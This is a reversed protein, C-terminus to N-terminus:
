AALADLKVTRSRAVAVWSAAVAVLLWAVLGLLPLTASHGTMMMRVADLAPSLPSLPRLASLSGPASYAVASVVTILLFVLSAVRGKTGFWAALAHNVAVFAAAAVLSVAVVGVTRGADLGLVRGGLVGLAVAQAAAVALGPALSRWLLRGNGRSSELNRPDVARFVAYAALAGIWLAMVLLLSAWSLTPLVLEDLGETSIPSAVVTALTSREDETYRPIEGAGEAVGDALLRTGDALERTGDALQHAGDALQGAGSAAQDIGATYQDIGAAYAAQGDALQDAGSAAQAQGDAIQLAGTSLQTAGDTLQQSGSVLQGAGADLEDGGSVLLDGGSVFQDLLDLVQTRTLTGGPLQAKLAAWEQQATPAWERFRTSLAALQTAAERVGDASARVTAADSALADAKQQAAALQAKARGQAQAVGEAFADCAGPTEQLTTPCAVDTATLRTAYADLTSGLAVGDAALADSTDLHATLRAVLAQVQPDIRDAWDDLEAVLPDLRAVLDGWDPVLAVLDRVQSVVPNVVGVYQDVGATYQTLGDAFTSLGTTFTASGAAWEDAGSAWTATGDSLVHLGSALEDGGTALQAAGARLPVGGASAQALGDALQDAGSAAQGTGDAVQDAGDALEATGDKLETFQDGMENFGLYINKLYEGTLFRNLGNSAANALHQGLVTESVGTVPSTDVRITAQVADAPEKSFSTAAASFEPPITVVAAYTGDALGAEAHKEDALVWTLNQERESDVLEAALQRGLPMKQGNVEVMEDLNVVAAQVSRLRPNANWTGWLFGGAVLLPVLLLALLTTWKPPNALTNM